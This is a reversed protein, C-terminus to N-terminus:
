TEKTEKAGTSEGFQLVIVEDAAIYELAKTGFFKRTIPMAKRTFTEDGKRLRFPRGLILSELHERIQDIVAMITDNEGVSLEMLPEQEMSFVRITRKKEGEMKPSGEGKLTGYAAPTRFGGIVGKGGGGIGGNEGGNNNNNNNGMQQPAELLSKPIRGYNSHVQGAGIATTATNNVALKRTTEAIGSARVCLCTTHDMKGPYATYDEPLRRSPYQFMFQRSSLTTEISHEIFEEVLDGGKYEGKIGSSNSSNTRHDLIAKLYQTRFHNKFHDTKDGDRKEMETWVKIHQAGDGETPHNELGIDHPSYGITQPDLNDHIGDTVLVIFDEDHCPILYLALNRLDAGGTGEMYPGLRGGPDKADTLNTRNGATVDTFKHFVSSYHFAKCDGVSACIFIYKYPPISSPCKKYNELDIDPIQDSWSQLRVTFTKSTKDKAFNFDIGSKNHDLHMANFSDVVDAELDDVLEMLIGGCLTTTGAEWVDEYGEIIKIHAKQFARLILRGAEKVDFIQKQSERLYEMYAETAKVAASLAAGGWGCGDAISLLTRKEYLEVAYYDCIPEGLGKPYTSTSKAFAATKIHQMKESETGRNAYLRECIGTNIFDKVRVNPLSIWDKYPGIKFTNKKVEGNKTNNANQGNQNQGTVLQELDELIQKNEGKDTKKM